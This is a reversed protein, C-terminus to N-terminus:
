KRKGGKEVGFNEIYPITVLVPLGVGKEIDEPTIYVIKIKKHVEPKINYFEERPTQQYTTDFLIFVTVNIKKSYRKTQEVIQEYYSNIVKCVNSRGTVFGIGFNIEKEM